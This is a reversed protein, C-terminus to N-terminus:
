VVPGSFEFAQHKRQPALLPCTRPQTTRISSPHRSKHPSTLPSSLSPHHCRSFYNNVVANNTAALRLSSSSTNENPALINSGLLPYPLFCNLVWSRINRYVPLYTMCPIFLVCYRLNFNSEMLSSNLFYQVELVPSNWQYYRHALGCNQQQRM